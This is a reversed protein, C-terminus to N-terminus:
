GTDITRSTSRFASERMQSVPRGSAAAVGVVIDQWGPSLGDLSVDIQDPNTRNTTIFPRALSPDRRLELVLSHEETYVTQHYARGREAQRDVVAGV